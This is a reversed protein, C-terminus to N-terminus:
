GNSDVYTQISKKASESLKKFRFSFGRGDELIRVVEGEAVFPKLHPGKGRDSSPSVNLKLVQGVSRTFGELLVQMGGISIDRCLGSLVVKQDTMVIQAVLPRRPLKRRDVKGDWPTEESVPSVQKRQIEKSRETAAEVARASAKEATAKKARSSTENENNEGKQTAPTAAANKSALKQAWVQDSVSVADAFVEVERLPKWGALGEKWCLVKGHIKAIRLFRDIEETSFPGYQTDNYHLFWIRQIQASEAKQAAKKVPASTVPMSPAQPVAGQFDKVDCIRVASTLGKKFVFHAWSIETKRIKELIETARYPGTWQTGLALMWQPEDSGTIFFHDTNEM